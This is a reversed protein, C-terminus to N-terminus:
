EAGGGTSCEDIAAQAVTLWRRGVGPMPADRAAIRRHGESVGRHEGKRDRGGGGM